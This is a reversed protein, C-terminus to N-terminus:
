GIGLNFRRPTLGAKRGCPNVTQHSLVPVVEDATFSLHRNFVAFKLGKFGSNFGM